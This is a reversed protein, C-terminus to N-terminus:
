YRCYSVNCMESKIFDRLFPYSLVKRNDCYIPSKWGSAWTFPQNPSLQLAGAQILKDAILKESTM